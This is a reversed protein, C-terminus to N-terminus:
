LAVLCLLSIYATLPEFPSNFKLIPWFSKGSFNNASYPPHGIYQGICLARTGCGKHNELTRNKVKGGREGSEAESSYVALKEVVVGSKWLANSCEGEFIDHRYVST